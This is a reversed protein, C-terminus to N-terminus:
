VQQQLLVKMKTMMLNQTTGTLIMTFMTTVILTAILIVRQAMKARSLIIVPHIKKTKRPIVAMAAPAPRRSM